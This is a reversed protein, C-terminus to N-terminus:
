VLLYHIDSVTGDAHEYVITQFNIQELEEPLLRKQIYEYVKEVM